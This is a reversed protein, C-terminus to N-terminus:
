ATPVAEKLRIVARKVIDIDDALGIDEAVEMARHIAAEIRTIEAKMVIVALDHDTRVEARMIYGQNNGEKRPDEIFVRNVAGSFVIDETEINVPICRSILMRAQQRWTTMAAAEMDWVFRSHLPSDPEKADKIVIDPTIYNGNMRYLEVMREEVTTKDM